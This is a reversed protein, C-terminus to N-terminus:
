TQKKEKKTKRRVIEKYIDNMGIYPQKGYYHKKLRGTKALTDIYQKKVDLLDAAMKPTVLNGTKDTTEQYWELFSKKNEM